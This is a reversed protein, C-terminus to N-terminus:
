VRCPAVFAARDGASLKIPALKDAPKTVTVTSGEAAVAEIAQLLLGAKVHRGALEVLDPADGGERAARVLSRLFSFAYDESDGGCEDFIAAMNLAPARLPCAVRLVSNSVIVTGSGAGYDFSILARGKGARLVERAVAGPIEWKDTRCLPPVPVEQTYLVHGNSATVRLAGPSECCQIARYHVRAEDDSVFPLAAALFRGCEFPEEGLRPCPPPEVRVLWLSSKGVHLRQAHPDYALELSRGDEDRVAAILSAAHVVVCGLGDRAPMEEDAGFTAFASCEGLTWADVREPRLDLAVLCREDTAKGVFRKVPTLWKKLEVRDISLPARAYSWTPSDIVERRAWQWREDDIPHTGSEARSLKAEHAGARFLTRGKDLTERECVGDCHYVLRYHDFIAYVIGKPGRRCASARGMLVLLRVGDFSVDLVPDKDIFHPIM